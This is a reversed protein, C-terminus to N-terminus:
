GSEPDFAPYTPLPEVHWSTTAALLRRALEAVALLEGAAELTGALTSWRHRLLQRRTPVPKRRPHMPKDATAASWGLNASVGLTWAAMAHRVGAHWLDDDALHPHCAVVHGRYTSELEAMLRSPLRFVCWCSAFPMTIYAADLFVSRYGAGEFDLLRMGDPTILNNDPCIDGPSFVPFREPDRVSRLTALAAALGAPATVGLRDLVPPLGTIWEGLFDGDDWAPVGRDYRARLAALESQRGVAATALRGYATAWALLGARAEAASGGLLLDALSPASGLDSLVLLPTALDAALMEPGHGVLQLGAAEATFCALADPRDDFIKVVVTGGAGTRCRLVTCRFGGGLDTPESLTTRLLSGATALASDIASM